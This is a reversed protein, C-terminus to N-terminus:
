VEIEPFSNALSIQSKNLRRSSPSPSQKEGVRTSDGSIMSPKGSPAFEMMSLATDKSDETTFSIGKAVRLIILNPTIVQINGTMPFFVNETPSNKLFTVLVMIEFIAYLAASEVSIALINTYVKGHNPGLVKRLKARYRLLRGAILGTLMVNLSLSLSWNATGFVQVLHSSYTSGPNATFVVNAISTGISGLYTLVPLIMVLMQFHGTWIVYCRYLLYGDTFWTNVTYAAAVVVQPWVSLLDPSTPDDIIQHQSYNIAVGMYITTVCLMFITYALLIRSKRRILYYINSLALCLYAGYCISAMNSGTYSIDLLSQLAPDLSAM